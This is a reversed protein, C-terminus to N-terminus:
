RELFEERRGEPVTEIIAQVAAEQDENMKLEIGKLKLYAGLWVPTLNMRDKLRDPDASVPYLENKSLVFWANSRVLDGWKSFVWDYYEDLGLDPDKELAPQIGEQIRNFLKKKIRRQQLKGAVFMIFWVVLLIVTIQQIGFQM